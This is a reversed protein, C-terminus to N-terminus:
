DKTVERGTVIVCDAGVKAAEDRLTQELTELTAYGNGHAAVLAIRFVQKRPMEGQHYLEVSQTLPGSIGGSQATPLMEHRGWAMACGSLQAALFIAGFLRIIVYLTTRMTKEKAIVM